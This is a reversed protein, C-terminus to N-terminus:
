ASGSAKGEASRTLMIAQVPCSQAADEVDPWLEEDPSVEYHLKQNDDLEFVEPAALVCLGNAECRDLDVHVRM